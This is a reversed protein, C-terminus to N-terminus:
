ETTQRIVPGYGREFRIRRLTSNATEDKLKWYGRRKKLAMRYNRVDEEEDEL